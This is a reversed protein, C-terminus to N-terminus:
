ATELRHMVERALGLQNRLNGVEKHGWSQLNKALSKLKVSLREM